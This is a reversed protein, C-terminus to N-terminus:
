SLPWSLSTIPILFSVKVTRLAKAYAHGSELGASVLASWINLLDDKRAGFMDIRQGGTIKCYLNYKKAVEAIAMLKDPTIEGGPVRPIVSYTGNRQINALFRDNTDQISHLNNDLVYQNFLSALISGVAPKCIECGLSSPDKGCESM